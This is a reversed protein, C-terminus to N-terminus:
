VVSKRDLHGIRGSSDKEMIVAAFCEPSSTVIQLTGLFVYTSGYGSESGFKILRNLLDAWCENDGRKKTDDPGPAVSNLVGISALRALRLKSFPSDDNFADRFRTKSRDGSKPNHTTLQKPLFSQITNLIDPSEQAVIYLIHIAEQSIDPDKHRTCEAILQLLPSYKVATDDERNSEILLHHHRRLAQFATRVLFRKQEHNKNYGPVKFLNTHKKNHERALFGQIVVTITDQLMANRTSVPILRSLVRLAYASQMPEKGKKDIELDSRLAVSATEIDCSASLLFQAFRSIKNDEMSFLKLIVSLLKQDRDGEFQVYLCLEDLLKKIPKKQDTNTNSISTTTLDNRVDVYPRRRQRQILAHCLVDSLPFVSNNSFIVIGDDPKMMMLSMM